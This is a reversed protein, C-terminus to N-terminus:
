GGARNRRPVLSLVLGIALLALLGYNVYFGASSTATRTVAYTEVIFRRAIQEALLLAYIFPVLARYRVLVTLATVALMLQGLALLAFLLLVARAAEPAFTDLPIGDAGQAVAATNFISNVSMVFKLAIFLGLLWLAARHGQFRNDASAPFLRLLAATV